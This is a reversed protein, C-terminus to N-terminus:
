QNRRQRTMRRKREMIMDFLEEIEDDTMSKEGPYIFARRFEYDLLGRKMNPTLNMFIDHSRDYRLVDEETHIELAPNTGLGNTYLRLVYRVSNGHTGQMREDYLTYGLESRRMIGMHKLAANVRLEDMSAM